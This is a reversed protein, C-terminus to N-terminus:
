IDFRVNDAYTGAGLIPTDGIRGSLKGTIGGTSTAAAVNGQADIVVAGITGVGGQDRKGIETPANSVDRGLLMEEKFHQLAERAYETVLQGPPSLIEVNHDAAFKMVSEGGLFTHNTRQMVLKALSIPHRIDKVLTCCGAKLTRGEMISAEMEITGDLTLVSGYGTPVTETLNM